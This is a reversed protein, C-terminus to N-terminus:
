KEKRKTLFQKYAHPNIAALCAMVTHYRPMNRKSVAAKLEATYHNQLDLMAGEPTEYEQSLRTEKTTM